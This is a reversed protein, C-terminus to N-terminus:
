ALECHIDVLQYGPDCSTCECTMPDTPPGWYKGEGHECPCAAGVPGETFTDFQYSERGAVGAECEDLTCESRLFCQNNKWFFVFCSCDDTNQCALGCAAADHVDKQLGNEPGLDTGGHGSYCNLHQHQEYGFVSSVENSSKIGVSSQASDPDCQMDSLHYGPDCSTCECAVPDTPPSYSIYKGEGHECPCPAGVPGETFTDFQYSEQGAVGAECEDLTCESRLFCQNNKWFFVFCSCDDTNQCALGCAAADHVDKQLGNEPGLDTGGHGSYCNLHQHQEYGFV